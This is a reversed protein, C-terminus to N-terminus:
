NKGGKPKEREREKGVSAHKFFHHNFELPHKKKPVRQRGHPVERRQCSGSIHHIYIYIHRQIRFYSTYITYIYIYVSYICVNHTININKSLMVNYWVKCRWFLAIQHTYTATKKTDMFTWYFPASSKYTALAQVPVWRHFWTVHLTGSPECLKCGDQLPMKKDNSITQVM